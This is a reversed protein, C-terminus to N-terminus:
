GDGRYGAADSEEASSALMQTEADYRGRLEDLVTGKWLPVGDFYAARGIMHASVPATLVVFAIIAVARSTIGLNNFYVATAMLTFGIGLTAVKTTASMRLFVDPLRLVAIGAVLTFFTGIIMFGISLLQQM